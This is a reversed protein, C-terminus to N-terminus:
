YPLIEVPKDITNKVEVVLHEETRRINLWIGRREEEVKGCAEVGNSLLNSFLTCLDFDSIEMKDPM